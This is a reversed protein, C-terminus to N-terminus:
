DRMDDMGPLKDDLEGNRQKMMTEGIIKKMNDDGDEYMDKMLDMISSQPDANKSATKKKKATLQSWYDYGGYDGQKVKALKVLIKDAKVVIKSKQPDIEKELNDKVLRYSKGRLDNVILDFSDATFNCEIQSRDISGVGPLDAYITVFPANYGGVDFSFRDIPTYKVSPSPPPVAPGTSLPKPSVSAASPEEVAETKNEQSTHGQAKSKEVRQLAESERRLKKALGELHMRATPRKMEAAAAEIEQADLLREESPPVEDAAESIEVM